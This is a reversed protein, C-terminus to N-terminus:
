RVKPTRNVTERRSPFYLRDIHAARKRLGMIKIKFVEGLSVVEAIVEETCPYVASPSSVCYFNEIRLRSFLHEVQAAAGPIQRKGKDLMRRGGRNDAKVAATSHYLLGYFLILVAEFFLRSKGVPEAPFGGIGKLGSQGRRCEVDDGTGKSQPIDGVAEGGEAFHFPQELWVSSDADEFEGQRGATNQSFPVPHIQAISHRCGAQEEESAAAREKIQGLGDAEPFPKREGCGTPLRTQEIVGGTRHGASDDSKM